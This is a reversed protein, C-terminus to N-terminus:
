HKHLRNWDENVKIRAFTKAAAQKIKPDADGSTATELEKKAEAVRGLDILALGTYLHTLRNESGLESGLAAESEVKKMDGNTLQYAALLLHAMIPLLDQRTKFTDVKPPLPLYRQTSGKLDVMGQLTNLAITYNRWADDLRNAYSLVLALKIRMEVDNSSGASYTPEFTFRREYEQAAKEWQGRRTYIEGMGERASMYACVGQSSKEPLSEFKKQAEDLKGAKLLLSAEYVVKDYAKDRRDEEPNSPIDFQGGFIEDPPPQSFALPAFTLIGLAFGIGVICLTRTQLPSAVRRKKQDDM